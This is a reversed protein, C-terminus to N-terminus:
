VNRKMIIKGEPVIKDNQLYEYVNQQQNGSLKVVNNEKDVSGICSFKKRMKKAIEPLSYYSDLGEIVTIRKRLTRQLVNIKVPTQKAEKIDEENNHILFNM